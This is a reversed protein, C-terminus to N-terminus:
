SRGRPCVRVGDISNCQGAVTALHLGGMMGSSRETAMSVRLPLREGGGRGGQICRRGGRQALEDQDIPSVDM